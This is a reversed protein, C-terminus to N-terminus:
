MGKTDSSTTNYMILINAHQHLYKPYTDIREERERNKGRKEEEKVLSEAPAQNQELNRGRLARRDRDSALRRRFGPGICILM